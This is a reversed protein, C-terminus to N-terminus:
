MVNCARKLECDAAVWGGVYLAGRLWGDIWEPGLRRPTMSEDLFSQLGPLVRRRRWLGVHPQNLALETGQSASRCRPGMCADIVDESPAHVGHTMCRVRAHAGNMRWQGQQSCIYQRM